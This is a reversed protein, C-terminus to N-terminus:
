SETDKPNQTTEATVVSTDEVIEILEDFKNIENQQITVQKYIMYASIVVLASLLLVLFINLKRM